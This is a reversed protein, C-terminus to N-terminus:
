DADGDGRLRDFVDRLPDDSNAVGRKIQEAHELLEREFMNRARLSAEIKKRRELEAKLMDVNYEAVIARQEAAQKAAIAQRFATYAILMAAVLAVPLLLRWNKIVIFIFPM